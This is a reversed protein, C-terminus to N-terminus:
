VKIIKAGGVDTGILGEIQDDFHIDINNERIMKPKWEQNKIDRDWNPDTPEFDRGIYFDPKFGIKELAPLINDRIHWMGHGSLIGVQHGRKRMFFAFSLLENPYAFLTGDLDYTIKM